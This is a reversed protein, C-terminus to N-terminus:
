RSTHLTDLLPKKQDVWPFLSLLSNLAQIDPQVLANGGPSGSPKSKLMQMVEKLAKTEDPAM